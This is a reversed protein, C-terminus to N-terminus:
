RPRWSTSSRASRPRSRPWRITPTRRRRHEGRAHLLGHGSPRVENRAGAGAGARRPVGGVLPGGGAQRRGVACLRTRAVGRRAARTRDAKRDASPAGPRLGARPRRDRRAVPADRGRDAPDSCSLRWRPRALVRRTHDVVASVLAEATTLALGCRLDDPLPPSTICFGAVVWRRANPQRSGFRTSRDESYANGCSTALM